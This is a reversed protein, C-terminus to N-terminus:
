SGTPTDTLNEGVFAIPKALLEPLENGWFNFNSTEATLTIKDVTTESVVDVVTLILKMRSYNTTPEAEDPEIIADKEAIEIYVLYNNNQIKTLAMAAPLTDKSEGGVVHKFYPSLGHAVVQSLMIVDVNEVNDSVVSLRNDATIVRNHWRSIEFQNIIGIKRSYHETQEATYSPQCAQLLMALGILLVGKLGTFVNM